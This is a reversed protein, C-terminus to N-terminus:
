SIWYLAEFTGFCWVHLILIQQLHLYQINQCDILLMDTANVKPFCRTWAKLVIALYCLGLYKRNTM